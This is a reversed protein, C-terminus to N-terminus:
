PNNADHLKEVTLFATVDGLISSGLTQDLGGGTNNILRLITNPNAVHMITSVTTIQKTFNINVESGPVLIGDLTLAFRPYLNISPLISLGYMVFYDGPESILLSGGAGIFSLDNILAVNTSAETESTFPIAIQDNIPTTQQETFISGYALSLVGPPGQPGEPGQAGQPGQPGVPGRVCQHKKHHKHSSTIVKPSGSSFQEFEADEQIVAKEVLLDNKYKLESSQAWLGVSSAMIFTFFLSKM